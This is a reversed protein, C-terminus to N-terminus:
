KDTTKYIYFRDADAARASTVIQALTDGRRGERHAAHTIFLTSSTDTHAQAVFRTDYHAVVSYFALEDDSTVLTVPDDKELTRLTSDLLRLDASYYSTVQSNYTYNHTFRVVGSYVMGLIIVTLPVLGAVRAYPNRPFLVYWASILHRIGYGALIVAVPFVTSAHSADLFIFPLLICGIILVIYSRATHREKWVRYLGITMLVVFGLSYLPALMYHSPLTLFGAFMDWMVRMNDVFSFHTINIGLLTRLTEPSVICAYILPTVVVAALGLSLILRPRTIHKISYRIHPHFAATIAVAVVLYIGLPMYLASALLTGAVVKWFTSFLHGRTVLTGALLLWVVVFSFTIAPTGDQILFLFQTSTAALVTTLIAVSRRFWIRTLYFIGIITLAGLIISPLKITLTSVGFVMFIIRQLVHYPLDIVMSPDLSEVSLAASKVTTEMEGLRLAGPTSLAAIGTTMVVIATIFLYGLPYRWKYILFDTVRRRM